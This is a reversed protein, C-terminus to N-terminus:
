PYIGYRRNGTAVFLADAAAVEADTIPIKKVDYGIVGVVEGDVHKPEVDPDGIYGTAESVSKKNLSTRLWLRTGLETEPDFFVKIFTEIATNESVSAPNILLSRSVNVIWKSYQAWNATASGPM